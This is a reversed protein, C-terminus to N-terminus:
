IMDTRNHKPNLRSILSVSRTEYLQNQNIKSKTATAHRILCARPAPRSIPIHCITLSWLCLGAIALGAVRCLPAALLGYQM